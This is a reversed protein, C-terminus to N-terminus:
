LLRGGARNAGIVIRAVEVAKAEEYRKSEEKM